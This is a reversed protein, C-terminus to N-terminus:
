KNLSESLKVAEQNSPDYQLSKAIHQKALDKNTQQEAFALYFHAYALNAKNAEVEEPKVMFIYKEYAQKAAADDKSSQYVNAVGYYAPAWTPLLESVKKWTDISSTWNQAEQYAVALNVLSQTDKPNETVKKVLADIAPNSATAATQVTSTTTSQNEATQASVFAAAFIMSAAAINRFRKNM